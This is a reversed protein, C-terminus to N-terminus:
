AGDFVYVGPATPMDAIVDRLHSPYEYLRTEDFDPRRRRHLQM